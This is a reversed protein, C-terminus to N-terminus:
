KKYFAKGDKITYKYKGFKDVLSSQWITVVVDGNEKEPFSLKKTAEIAALNYIGEKFEIEQVPGDNISVLFKFRYNNM